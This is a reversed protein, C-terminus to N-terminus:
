RRRPQLSSQHCRDCKQSYARILVCSQDRYYYYYITSYYYCSREPPSELRSQFPTTPFPSARERERKRSFPSEFLRFSSSPQAQTAAPINAFTSTSFSSSISTVHVQFGLCSIVTLPNPTNNKGTISKQRCVLLFIDLLALLLVRM